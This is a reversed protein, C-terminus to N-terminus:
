EVTFNISRKASAKANRDIVVLRLEYEGPSFKDLNFRAMYAQGSQNQDPSTTQPAQQADNSFNKVPTAVVLQNGSYVQTQIALDTTGKADSTANYAFVMFDFTSGSKFRRYVIAPRVSAQEEPKEGAVAPKQSSDGAPATAANGMPFFVSSLTLQKKNLDPVEFWNSATGLQAGGDDRAVFRLQYFGPKLPVRKVYTIGNKMTLDFTSPRMNLVITESFSQEPKGDEKYIIGILDVKAQRRDGTQQYKLTTAEFHAIIDTQIGDKPSYLFTVATEVPVERRQFLSSLGGLIQKEAASKTEAALKEPAKKKDKEAAKEATREAKEAAKDDPAFYGKRTRVKLEPRNPVKIELKRFRGDRYSVTPEFALLYYSETDDLIKQLGLNLDNNNFIAKGGSDEALAFMGDREAEMSSSELRFRAAALAGTGFFSPSSADMTEPMAMLGRADLSYIVVGARTAADTIRRIDYHVGNRQGGLLFGDSLLVLVKRGPLGRLDRVINELTSLTATTLNNNEQIIMRARSQSTSIAMRRDLGQKAMLEQVALELADNDGDEILEAQYPTIRPIDFNNTATRTAVSLRNVARQLAEHSSTFQQFMGVQGSTTIMAVQDSQGIQQDIFKALTKKALMLNAPKLHIDDVALVLYRGANIAPSAPLATASATKGSTKPETRLWTAQRTATGVSFHTITQPKGDEFIQFDERKLDKVIKGQKDTVVLDVQVLETEIRLTGPDQGQQNEKNQSQAASSITLALSLATLTIFYKVLRLITM